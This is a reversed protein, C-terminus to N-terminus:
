RGRTGATRRRPRDPPHRTDLPGNLVETLDMSPISTSATSADPDGRGARDPEEQPRRPRRPHRRPGEPGAGQLGAEFRVGLHATVVNWRGRRMARDRGPRPGGRRRVPGPGRDTARAPPTFGLHSGNLEGLMLNVVTAFTTAPRAGRAAMDTYKRRIADWNRNGLREDYYSTACRGGASTSPRATAERAPQM